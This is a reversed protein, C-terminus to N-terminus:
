EHLVVVDHECKKGSEHEAGKTLYPRPFFGDGCVREITTSVSNHDLVIYKWCLNVSLNQESNYQADNTGADYESHVSVLCVAGGSVMLCM